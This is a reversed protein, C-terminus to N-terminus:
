AEKPTSNAKNGPISNYEYDLANRNRGKAPEDLARYKRLLDSEASSLESQSPHTSIPRNFHVYVDTRGVLYDVTTEFFDALKILLESTPERQGKEYSVYTTYPLNLQKSAERMNLGKAERLEKIHLM